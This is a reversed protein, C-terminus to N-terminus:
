QIRCLRFNRLLMCSDGSLDSFQTQTDQLPVRTCLANQLRRNVKTTLIIVKEEVSYHDGKLLKKMEEPLIESAKLEVTEAKAPDDALSFSSFGLFFSTLLSTLFLLKKVYKTEM